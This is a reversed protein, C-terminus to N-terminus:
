LKFAGNPFRRKIFILRQRSARNQRRGLRARQRCYAEMAKRGFFILIIFAKIGESGKTKRRWVIRAFNRGSFVSIVVVLNEFASRPVKYRGDTVAQIVALTIVFVLWILVFIWGKMKKGVKGKIRDIIQRLAYLVLFILYLFLSFEWSNLHESPSFAILAVRTIQLAFLIACLWYLLKLTFQSEPLAIIKPKLGAMLLKKM